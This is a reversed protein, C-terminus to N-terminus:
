LMTRQWPADFVSDNTANIDACHSYTELSASCGLM